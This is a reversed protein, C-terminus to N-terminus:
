TFPGKQEAENLTTKLAELLSGSELCKKAGGDVFDIRKADLFVKAQSFKKKFTMEADVASKGVVLLRKRSDRALGQLLIQNVYDDGFGYGVIVTVMTSKVMESFVYSLHLFPDTPTLKHATGFILLSEPDGVPIRDGPPCSLSYIAKNEEDQYWDLSGHLKYIRTDFNQFLESNWGNADFGCTYEIDGCALATELCLDYNLTFIDLAGFRKQLDRLAQFHRIDGIPPTRLWEKIKAKLLVSLQNLCDPQDNSIGDFRRLIENWSGVFPSLQNTYRNQLSDITAAVEEINFTADPFMGQQGRLFQIGGLILSLCRSLNEDGANKIEQIFRDTMGTADPLNAEISAGAGLLIVFSGGNIHVM